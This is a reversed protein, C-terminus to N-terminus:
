RYRNGFAVTAHLQNVSAAIREQGALIQNTQKQQQQKELEIKFNRAQINSGDLEAARTAYSLATTEEGKNEYIKALIFTAQSHQRKNRGRGTDLLM